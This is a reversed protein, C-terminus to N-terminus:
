KPDFSVRDERSYALFLQCATLRRTCYQKNTLALLASCSSGSLEAKPFAHTSNQDELEPALWTPQRTQKEECRAAIGLCQQRGRHLM